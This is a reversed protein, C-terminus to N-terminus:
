INTTIPRHMTFKCQHLFQVYTLYKRCKETYSVPYKSKVILSLCKQSVRVPKSFMIWHISSFHCFLFIGLEWTEPASAWSQSEQNSFMQGRDTKLYIINIGCKVTGPHSKTLIWQTSLKDCKNLKSLTIFILEGIFMLM